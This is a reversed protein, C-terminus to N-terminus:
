TPHAVTRSSGQIEPGPSSADLEAIAIGSGPNTRYGPDSTPWLRRGDSGRVARLIGDEWYTGDRHFSHFVV